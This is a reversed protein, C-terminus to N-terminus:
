KPALSSSRLRTGPSLARTASVRKSPQSMWDELPWYGFGAAVHRRWEGTPAVLLSPEVGPCRGRERDDVVEVVEVVLAGEGAL